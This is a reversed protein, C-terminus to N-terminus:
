LICAKDGCEKHGDHQDRFIDYPELSGSLPYDDSYEGRLAKFTEHLALNLSDM